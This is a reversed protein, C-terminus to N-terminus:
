QKKKQPRGRKRIEKMRVTVTKPMNENNMGEAHGSLRIFKVNGPRRLTDNIEKNKRIRWNDEEKTHGYIKRVTNREFVTLANVKEAGDRLVSPKVTKYNKM